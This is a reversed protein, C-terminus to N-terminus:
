FSSTPWRWSQYIRFLSRCSTPFTVLPWQRTFQCVLMLGFLYPPRPILSRSVNPLVRHNLHNHYLQSVLSLGQFFRRFTVYGISLCSKKEEVIMWMSPFVSRESLDLPKLSCGRFIQCGVQEFNSFKFRPCDVLLKM